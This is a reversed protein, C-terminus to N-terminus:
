ELEKCVGMDQPRYTGFLVIDQPTKGAIGGTRHSKRLTHQCKISVPVSMLRVDFTTTQVMIPKVAINYNMNYM